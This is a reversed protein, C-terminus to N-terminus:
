GTTDSDRRGIQAQVWALVESSVWASSHTSLKVPAPFQQKKVHAYLASRSLGCMRLVERIKILRDPETRQLNM